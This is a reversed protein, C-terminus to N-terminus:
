RSVHCFCYEDQTGDAFIHLIDVMHIHGGAFPRYTGTAELIDLEFTGDLFVGDEGDDILDFDGGVFRASFSGGPIHYACLDGAFQVYFTGVAKETPSPFGSDRNYIAVKMPLFSGDKLDIQSLGLNPGNVVPEYIGQLLIVFPNSSAVPRGNDRGQTTQTQFLLTVALAALAAIGAFKLKNIIKM